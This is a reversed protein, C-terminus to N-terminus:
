VRSVNRAEPGRVMEFSVAANNELVQEERTGTDEHRMYSILKRALGERFMTHDDALLVTTPNRGVSLRVQYRDQGRSAVRDRWMLVLMTCGFAGEVVGKSVNQIRSPREPKEPCRRRILTM